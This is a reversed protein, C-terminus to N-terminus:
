KNICVDPNISIMYSDFLQHIDSRLLLGNQVSNISEGNTSPMTIWRSFNQEMWQANYALPFIHAAEFGAWNGRRARVARDGTIICRRDRSRVADCFAKTRTGSQLSITRVLWPENNVSISGLKHSLQQALFRKLIKSTLFKGATVIYYSGPQLPTNDRQVTTNTDGNHQLFFTSTFIFLIEIMSHFNAKTVGNTLILGGLVEDPSRADHIHVDRGESRNLTPM